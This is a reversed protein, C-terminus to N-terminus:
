SLSHQHTAFHVHRLDWVQFRRTSGFFEFYRCDVYVYWISNELNSANRSRFHNNMYEKIENIKEIVLIFLPTVISYPKPMSLQITIIKSRLKSGGWKGWISAKLHSVQTEWIFLCNIRYSTTILLHYYDCNRM